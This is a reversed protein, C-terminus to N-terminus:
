KMVLNYQQQHQQRTSDDQSRTAQVSCGVVVFSPGDALVVVVIVLALPILNSQLQRAGFCALSSPPPICAHLSARRRRRGQIRRAHATPRQQRASQCRCVNMEARLRAELGPRAGNAGYRGRRQELARGLEFCSGLVALGGAIFGSERAAARRTGCCPGLSLTWLDDARGAAAGGGGTRRESSHESRHVQREKQGTRAQVASCQAARRRSERREGERGLLYELQRDGSLSRCLADIAVEEGM